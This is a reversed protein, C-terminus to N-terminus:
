SVLPSIRRLKKVIKILTELTFDIEDENNFRGLSFRVSGRALVSSRGTAKIVYSPEMSGSSCASGTSVAIGELDLGILIAEGEIFDFSFNINNPLRNTPHGNLFANEINGLVGQIFKDRLHTQVANENEMLYKSLEIAKGFGAIGPVNETSARLKGEQSGGNIIPNIKVGKRKYLLGVGKPGYLKHASASLLDVGMEEVDINLHGFTQVADMHFYINNERAIKGIEKVPQITGIENNAHMVSILLTNKNIAKKLEKIKIRGFNDVPIYSIKFGSKELNHCSELVAHHEIISTIIHKKLNNAYAVGKIALNDSETGSGTFIIEEPSANILCAAIARSHEITEKAEQGISHLSSPNGYIDSFYPIMKRVVDPDTKTTAANDLYVKRM